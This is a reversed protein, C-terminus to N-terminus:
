GRKRRLLGFGGMALLSITAPEPVVSLAVGDGFTPQDGTVGGWAAEVWGNAERTMWAWVMVEGDGSGIGDLGISFEDDDGWGPNGYIAGDETWGLSDMSTGNWSSSEHWHPGGSYYLFFDPLMNGSFTVRGYSDTTAGSGAIGDVDIAVFFSDVPDTWPDGDGLYRDINGREMGLYLNDADSTALLEYSGGHASQTGLSVVDPGVWEDLSADFGITLALAPGAGFLMCLVLLILLAKEMMGGIELWKLVRKKLTEIMLVCFVCM